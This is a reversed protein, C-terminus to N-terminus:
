SAKAIRIADQDWAGLQRAACSTPRLRPDLCLAVERLWGGPGTRVQISRPPLGPNRAVFAARLAGATPRNAALAAMDPMRLAQWLRQASAYYADPTKAACSGHKLWEHELLYASPTMCMYGRLTDPSPRAAPQCWQPPQPGTGEPWLGHVVFGFHQSGHCQFDANHGRAGHCYEPSWSLAFTYGSIPTRVSPGDPRIPPYPDVHAPASCSIVQAMAPMPLLALALALALRRM